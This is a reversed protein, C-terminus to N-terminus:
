KKHNFLTQKFAEAALDRLKKKLFDYARTHQENYHGYSKSLEELEGISTEWIEKFKDVSPVFLIKGNNCLSCHIKVRYHHILAYDSSGVKVFGNAYLWKLLMSYLVKDEDTSITKLDPLFRKDLSNYLELSGM